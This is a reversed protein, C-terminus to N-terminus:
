RDASELKDSLHTTLLERIPIDFAQCTHFLFRISIRAPFTGAELLDLNKLTIHLHQAMATRSLGHKQRLFRINECLIRYQEQTTM